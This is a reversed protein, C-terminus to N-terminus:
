APLLSVALLEIDRCCSSIKISVHGPNCWRTNVYMAYGGRKWKRCAKTDRVTSFTPLEVNSDLISATLWTECFCLLSCEWYIRVNKVLAALEDIKNQLSNVNGQIVSPVSPKYRWKRALRKAKLKTSSRCGRNPRRVEGSLCSPAEGAPVKTRLDLLQNRTYVLRPTKLDVDMPYFILFLFYIGLSTCLVLLWFMSGLFSGPVFFAAPFAAVRTPAMTELLLGSWHWCVVVYFIVSVVM